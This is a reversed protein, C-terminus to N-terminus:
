EWRLSRVPNAMAAKVSQFSVTMLAILIAGLGAVISIWWSITIRLPTLGSTKLAIVTLASSLFLNAKQDVRKAFPLLLALTLGSFLTGLSALDYLRNVLPAM